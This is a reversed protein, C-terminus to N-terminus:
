HLKPTIVVLYGVYLEQDLSQTNWDINEAALRASFILLKGYSLLHFCEMGDLHRCM